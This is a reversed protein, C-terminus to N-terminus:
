TLLIVVVKSSFQYGSTKWCQSLPAQSLAQCYCTPKLTGPANIGKEGQSSLSQHARQPKAQRHAAARGQLAQQTEKGEEAPSVTPFSDPVQVLVTLPNALLFLSIVSSTGAPLHKSLTQQTSPLTRVPCLSTAEIRKSLLLNPAFFTIREATNLTKRSQCNVPNWVSDCTFFHVPQNVLRHHSPELPVAWYLLDLHHSQYELSTNNLPM